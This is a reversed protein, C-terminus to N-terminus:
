FGPGLKEDAEKVIAEMRKLVDKPIPEPTYSKEVEKVKERIRDFMSKPSKWYNSGLRLDRYKNYDMLKVSEISWKHDVYSAGLGRKRILDVALTEPTVDFDSQQLFTKCWSIVEDIFPVAESIWNDISNAVWLCDSGSLLQNLVAVTLEFAYQQDFIKSDASISYACHSFAPRFYEHMIQAGLHNGLWKWIWSAGGSRTTRWDFGMVQPGMVLIPSHPALTQIGVFGAMISALAMSVDAPLSFPGSYGIAESGCTIMPLGYKTAGLMNLAGPKQMTMTPYFGAAGAMLPRKRLEEVGGVLEGAIRTHYDWHGIAMGHMVHKSTNKLSIFLSHIDGPLGQQWFDVPIASAAALDINPAWDWFRTQWEVDNPTSRFINWSKKEENWKIYELGGEVGWFYTSEGPTILVDNQPNRAALFVSRATKNMSEKVIPEPIKIARKERDVTCGANEYVKLFDPVERVIDSSVGVGVEQLLRIAAYYISEM